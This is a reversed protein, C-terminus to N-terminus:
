YKEADDDESCCKTGTWTLGAKECTAANKGILTRDKTQSAPVDLDTVFKRDSRCYYTKDDQSKVSQGTGLRKGDVRSKCSGDGCCETISERGKDACIYESNGITKRWFAGDCKFWNNGDSVYEFGSCGVYRIDGLNPTSPLWQASEANADINCLVGSSIRGCDDADDGCCKAKANWDTGAICNCAGSSDDPNTEQPINDPVGRCDCGGSRKCKNEPLYYSFDSPSLEGFGAKVDDAKYCGASQIPCPPPPSPTSGGGKKGGGGAEVAIPLAFILIALILLINLKSNASKM